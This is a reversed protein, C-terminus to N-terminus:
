RVLQRSAGLSELTIPPRKANVPLGLAEANTPEFSGGVHHTLEM